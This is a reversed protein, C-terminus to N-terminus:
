LYLYCLTYNSLKYIIVRETGLATLAGSRYKGGAVCPGGGRCKLMRCGDHAAQDTDGTPIREMPKKVVNKLIKKYLVQILEGLHNIWQQQKIHDNCPLKDRYHMIVSQTVSQLRKTDLASTFDCQLFDAPLTSLLDHILQSKSSSTSTSSSAPSSSSASSSAQPRQKTVRKRKNPEGVYFSNEIPRHRVRSSRRSFSINSSCNSNSDHQSDDCIDNNDDDNKNDDVHNSNNAHFQERKVPPFSFSSSSSASSCSVHSQEHNSKLEYQAIAAHLANDIDDDDATLDILACFNSGPM